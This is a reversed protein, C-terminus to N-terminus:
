EDCQEAQWLCLLVFLRSFHISAVRKVEYMEMYLRLRSEVSGNFKNTKRKRNTECENM